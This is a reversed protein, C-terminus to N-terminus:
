YFTALREEPELAPTVSVVDIVPTKGSFLRNRQLRIKGRLTFWSGPLPKENKGRYCAMGCFQTDAACCNMLMRGAAFVSDPMPRTTEPFMGKFRVTKGEYQDGNEMLDSFFYAYDRDEIEVVPANIDFPLPDVTGDM